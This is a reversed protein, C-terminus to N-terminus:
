QKTITKNVCESMAEILLDCAQLDTKKDPSNFCASVNTRENFCHIGQRAGGKESLYQKELRKSDYEVINVTDTFRDELKENSEDLKSHTQKNQERFAEM